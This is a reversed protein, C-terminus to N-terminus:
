DLIGLADRLTTCGAPGAPMPSEADIETRRAHWCSDGATVVYQAYGSGSRDDVHCRWREAARESCESSFSASGTDREISNTLTRESIPVPLLLYTAVAATPVAVFFLVWGVTV